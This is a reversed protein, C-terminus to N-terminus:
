KVENVLAVCAAHVKAAMEESAATAAAKAEDTDAAAVAAKM